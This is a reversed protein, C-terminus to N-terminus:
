RTSQIVPTQNNNGPYYPLMPYSSREASISGSISFTRADNIYMLGLSVSPNVNFRNSLFTNNQYNKNFGTNILSPSFNMFAPIVSINAFAYFNNNLRRNLQLGMPAALITANSGNFFSITTSLEGYSSWFWKKQSLSDHTFTNNAFGIGQTYGPFGFSPVIQSKANTFSFILIVFLIKRM